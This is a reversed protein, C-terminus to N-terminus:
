FAQATYREAITSPCFASVNIEFEPKSISNKEMASSLNEKGAKEFPSLDRASELAEYLVFLVQLNRDSLHLWNKGSFDNLIWALVEYNGDLLATAAQALYDQARRFEIRGFFDFAKENNGLEMERFGAFRFMEDLRLDNASKADLYAPKDAARDYELLLNTFRFLRSYSPLIAEMVRGEALIEDSLEARWCAPHSILQGLLPFNGPARVYLAHKADMFDLDFDGVEMLVDHLIQDTHTWVVKDVHYKELEAELTVPSWVLASYWKMHEVPYLIDTRGDIYVQIDPSMRYILYGGLGYHNFVRGKINRNQMYEIMAEPYRAATARNELMFSRARELNSFLTACVGILCIVGVMRSKARNGSMFSQPFRSSILLEAMLLTIVIGSVTILRPLDIAAYVMTAWVLLHGPKRQKIALLPTVIVVLGLVYTGALELMIPDHQYESIFHRWDASFSFAEIVPHSWAPNL